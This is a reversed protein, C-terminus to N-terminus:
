ILTIFANAYYAGVVLLACGSAVQIARQRSGLQAFRVLASAFLGVVLFPVGRGVGFALALGFGYLTSGRAASITLLVLLPALSTGLSFVFGYILSGIAGPRRWRVLRDFRLRPGAFAAAAAALSLVAMALTWSKGFLDTGLAGLQGALMGLLTLNAVIGAFFAAAFVIGTKRRAGESAGAVSAVGLGVPLTCPCVASALVGALVAVAFALPSAAGLATEFHDLFHRLTM